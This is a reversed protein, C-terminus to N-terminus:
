GVVESRRGVTLLARISQVLQGTDVLPKDSGKRAVTEPANPAWPGALITQKTDGAIVVGALRYVRLVALIGGGRTARRVAPRMLRIWKRHHRALAVRLYPRSPISDTGLELAAAIRVLERGSSDGASVESSLIGVEMRAGNLQEVRLISAELGPRSPDKTVPM